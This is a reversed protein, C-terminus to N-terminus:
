FKWDICSRREYLRVVFLLVIMKRVFWLVDVWKFQRGSCLLLRGRYLAFDKMKSSLLQMLFIIFVVTKM